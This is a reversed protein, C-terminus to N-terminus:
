FKTVIKKKDQHTHVELYRGLIITFISFFNTRPNTETKLLFDAVEAHWPYLIVIKIYNWSFFIDSTPMNYGYYASIFTKTQFCFAFLASGARCLTCNHANFSRMQYFGGLSVNNRITTNYLLYFFSFFSLFFYTLPRSRLANTLKSEMHLSIIHSREQRPYLHM